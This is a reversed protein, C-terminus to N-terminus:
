SISLNSVLIKLKTIELDTKVTVNFSLIFDSIDNTWDFYFKEPINLGFDKKTLVIKNLSDAILTVGDLKYISSTIEIDFHQTPPCTKPIYIMESLIFIDFHIILNNKSPSKSPSKSPYKSPSKSDYKFITNNDMKLHTTLSNSINYPISINNYINNELITIEFTQNTIKTSDYIVYVIPLTLNLYQCMLKYINVISENFEYGLQIYKTLSEKVYKKAFSLSKKNVIKNIDPFYLHKYRNIETTVLIIYRSLDNIKSWDIPSPLVNNYTIQKNKIIDIFITNKTLNKNLFTFNNNGSKFYIIMPLVSYSIFYINEDIREEPNCILQGFALYYM